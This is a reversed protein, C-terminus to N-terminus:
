AAEEKASPAIVGLRRAWASGTPTPALLVSRRDNQDTKRTILGDDVLRNCARTIAPKSIRLEGALGRVTHPRARQALTILVACQRMTLDMGAQVLTITASAFSTDSVQAANTRTIKKATM